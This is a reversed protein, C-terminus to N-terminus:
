ASPVSGAPPPARDRRRAAVVRSALLAGLAFGLVLVLTLLRRELGLDSMRAEPSAVRSVAYAAIALTLLVGVAIRVIARPDIPTPHPRM